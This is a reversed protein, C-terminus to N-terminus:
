KKPGQEPTKAPTTEMFDFYAACIDFATKKLCTRCIWFEALSGTRRAEIRIKRTDVNQAGCIECAHSERPELEIIKKENSM